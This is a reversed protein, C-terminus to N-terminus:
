SCGTTSGCATCVYCTGARMTQNGCNYCLPAASDQVIADKKPKQANQSAQITNQLDIRALDDLNATAAPLDATSAAITTMAESIAAEAEALTEMAQETTAEAAQNEGATLLSTQGEPMDDM